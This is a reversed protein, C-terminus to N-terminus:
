PQVQEVTEFGWVLHLLGPSEQVWKRVWQRTEDYMPGREVITGAETGAPSLNERKM